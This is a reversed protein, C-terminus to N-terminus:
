ISKQQLQLVGRPGQGLAVQLAMAVEEMESVRNWEAMDDVLFDLGHFLLALESTKWVHVKHKRTVQIVSILFIM